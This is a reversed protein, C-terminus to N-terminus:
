SGNSSCVCVEEFFGPNDAFSDSPSLRLRSLGQLLVQRRGQTTVRSIPIMVLELVKPRPFACEYPRARGLGTDQIAM